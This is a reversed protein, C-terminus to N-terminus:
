GTKIYVIGYVSHDLNKLKDLGRVNIISLLKQLLMKKAVHRICEKQNRFLKLASEDRPVRLIKKWPQATLPDSHRLRRASDLPM